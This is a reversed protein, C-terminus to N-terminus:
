RQAETVEKKAKALEEELDIERPTKEDNDVCKM